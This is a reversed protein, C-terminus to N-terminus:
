NKVFVLLVKLNPFPTISDLVYGKGAWSNIDADLLENNKSRPRDLKWVHTHYEKNRTPPLDADGKNFDGGM